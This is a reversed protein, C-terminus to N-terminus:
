SGAGSMGVPGPADGGTAQPLPGQLGGLLSTGGGDACACVDALAARILAVEEEDKKEELLPQAGNMRTLGTSSHSYAVM